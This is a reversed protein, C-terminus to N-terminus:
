LNNIVVLRKVMFHVCDHKQVRCHQEEDESGSDDEGERRACGLGDHCEGVGHHKRNNPREGVLGNESGGASEQLYLYGM